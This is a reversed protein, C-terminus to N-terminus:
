SRKRFCLRIFLSMAFVFLLPVSSTTSDRAITCGGSNKHKTASEDCDLCGGDSSPKEGSDTQTETPELNCDGSCGVQGGSVGGTDVPDEPCEIYRYKTEVQRFATPGSSETLVIDEDVDGGYFSIDLTTLQDGEVAVTVIQPYDDLQSRTVVGAYRLDRSYISNDVTMPKAALAHIRWNFYQHEGEGVTAIRTPVVPSDTTFGFRIPGFSGCITAGLEPKEQAATVKFAIFFWSKDVYYTFHKVANEDYPYQNADLWDTFAASDDARLLTWDFIGVQGSNIVQVSNDSGADMDASGGGRGPSDNSCVERYEIEPASLDEFADFVKRDLIAPEMTITNPIPLILGFDAAAGCFEPSFIYTEEGDHHRLIITQTPTITLGEGFGGGCAFAVSSYFSIIIFAVIAFWKLM